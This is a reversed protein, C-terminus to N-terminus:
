MYMLQQNVKDNKQQALNKLESFMGLNQLKALLSAQKKETPCKVLMCNILALADTWTEKQKENLCQVIGLYCSKSAMRAYKKATKDIMSFSQNKMYQLLSILCKIAQTKM